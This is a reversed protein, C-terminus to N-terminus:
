NAGGPSCTPKPIAVSVIPTAFPSPLTTADPRRVIAVPEVAAAALAATWGETSCFVSGCFVISVIELECTGKGCGNSTGGFRNLLLVTSGICGTAVKGDGETDNATSGAAVVCVDLLYVEFSARM